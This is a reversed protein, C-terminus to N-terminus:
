KGNLLAMALIKEAVDMTKLADSFNCAPQSGNLCALSFDAASAQVGTYIFLDDSGAVAKADYEIGKTDGDKYLYGKGEHEAEAYISPAHMEVAFIRKGSSWSNILYGNAGNSFHLAASIFNIDSTGIRKVDSEMCEVDGGCIWRLTDISHVCDDMMHDRAGFFDSIQCKYFKCLAHVIDGRELCKERLLKVMPTYRRQFSVQTVCHNRRAITELSRAQHISLAFPKEIYLNIKKELCWKWIDYMIHPQGVVVAADPELEIMMKQYDFVGGEGYRRAINYRDATTNLRNADIDCIGIMDVYDLSNFAPYIVQNARDGAGVMVVKLKRIM